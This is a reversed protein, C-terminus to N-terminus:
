KGKLIRVEIIYVRKYLLHIKRKLIKPPPPPFFLGTRKQFHANLYLFGIPLFKCSFFFFNIKKYFFKKKKEFIVLYIFSSKLLFFNKKKKKPPPPPPPPPVFCYKRYTYMLIFFVM